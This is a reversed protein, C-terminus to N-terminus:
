VFLNLPLQQPHLQGMWPALHFYSVIVIVLPLHHQLREQNTFVSHLGDVSASLPATVTAQVFFSFVVKGVILVLENVFSTKRKCVTVM